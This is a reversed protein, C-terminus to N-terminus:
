SVFVCLLHTVIRMMATQQSEKWLAYDMHHTRINHERTESQSAQQLRDEICPYEAITASLKNVATVLGNIQTQTNLKFSGIVNRMSDLEQDFRKCVEQIKENM